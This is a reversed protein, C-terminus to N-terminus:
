RQLLFFGGSLNCFLGHLVFLLKAIHKHMVDAIGILVIKQSPCEM